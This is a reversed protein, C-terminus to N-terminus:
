ARMREPRWFPMKAIRAAVKKRQFDVTIEMEVQTGPKSYRSDITALGIYKKLMTSWVKTTVRGVHKGGAYVPVPERCPMMPLDPMLGAAGYAAELPAWAVEIGVVSQKPGSLKEAQLAAKGNFPEEKDLKVAWGLGLEYPSLKHHALHAVESSVYDVGILVFGAEIRAIDMAALGCPTVHFPAGGEIVADWVRLAHQAPLWIEFGLDGTYGTRSVTVPVGDIEGEAFRFFKLDEVPVTSVAQLAKRANPGQLALAVIDDTRDTITVDYGVANRSIWGLSPEASCVQYANEGLRFVTGEQRVKGDPDCWPTYVVRGVVVKSLNQTFVRNMVATADPGTVWCKFLPSVDILAAAHRIAAYEPAAFENYSSAVAFGSWQRWDHSHCLAATRDHFATGTAM